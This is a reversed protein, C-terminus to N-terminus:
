WEFPKDVTCCYLGNQKCLWNYDAECNAIGVVFCTEKNNKCLNSLSLFTWVMKFLPRTWWNYDWGMLVFSPNFKKIDSRISWPFISIIGLKIDTKGWPFKKAVKKFGFVVIKEKLSYKKFLDVMQLFLKEDYEKMEVLIDLNKDSLFILGEELGLAEGSIDPDHSIILRDKNPSWRVDIEIGDVGNEVAKQFSSLSNEKEGVSWGRHAFIKM